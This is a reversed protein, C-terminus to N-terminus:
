ALLEKDQKKMKGLLYWLQTAEVSTLPQAAAALIDPRIANFHRESYQPDKSKPYFALLKLTRIAKAIGGESNEDHKSVNNHRGGPPKAPERAAVAGTTNSQLTHINHLSSVHFSTLKLKPTPLM